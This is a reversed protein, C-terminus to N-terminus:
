AVLEDVPAAKVKKPAYPLAGEQSDAMFKALAAQGIRGTGYALEVFSSGTEEDRRYRNTMREWEVTMDPIPIWYLDEDGGMVPEVNEPGHVAELVPVEWPAVQDVIASLNPMPHIKKVTVKVYRM